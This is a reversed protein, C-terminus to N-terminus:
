IEFKKYKEPVLANWGNLANSRVLAGRQLEVVQAPEHLVVSGDFAWQYNGLCWPSFECFIKRLNEVIKTFKM